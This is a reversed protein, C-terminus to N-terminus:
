MAIIYFIMKKSLYDKPQVSIEVMGTHFIYFKLIWFYRFDGLTSIETLGFTRRELFIM